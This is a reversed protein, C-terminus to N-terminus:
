EGEEEYMKDYMDKVKAAFLARHELPVQSEIQAHMITGEVHTKMVNLPFRVQVFRKGSDLMRREYSRTSAGGIGKDYRRRVYWAVVDAAQLPTVKKDDRFEPTVHIMSPFKRVLHAPAAVALMQYLAEVRHADVDHDDFIINIEDEFKHREAQIMLGIRLFQLKFLYPDTYERVGLSVLEHKDSQQVAYTWADQWLVVAVGCFVHENIIQVCKELFTDTANRKWSAFEGTGRLAERMHVYAVKHRKLHEAWDDCFNSWKRAEAVYGGLVMVKSGPDNVKGSDDIYAIRLM